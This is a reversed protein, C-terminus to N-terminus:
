LPFVHPPAEISDFLFLEICPKKRFCLPLLHYVLSHFHVSIDIINIITEHLLLIEEKSLYAVDSSIICIHENPKEETTASAHYKGDGNTNM